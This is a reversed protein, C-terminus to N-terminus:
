VSPFPPGEKSIRARCINRTYSRFQSLTISEFVSKVKQLYIEEVLSNFASEAQRCPRAFPDAAGEFQRFLDCLRAIDENSVLGGPDPNQGM